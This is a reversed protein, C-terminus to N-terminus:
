FLQNMSQDLLEEDFTKIYEETVKLRSHGLAKSIAYLDMGKKLAYHAFSHRSVHFSVNSQIGAKGAITKLHRNVIVNNSSIKKRLEQPDRYIDDLIPFIYQKSHSAAYKRILPAFFDIPEMTAKITPEWTTFSVLGGLNDVYRLLLQYMPRQQNISKQQGTKNMKYILRGDILNGWTLCCLDGFRIGANYFSFMFYNRTHWLDSGRELSLNEIARIQDFSLKVKNNVKQFKVRDVKPYPDQEIDDKKLLWDTMGKLRQLKKRVTNPSNGVDTLLWDQFEEIWQATLQDLQNPMNRDEIFLELNNIVVTYHRQEWYRDESQLHNKYEQAQYLISRSDEKSDDESLADTISDLSLKDQKYLEEEVNYVDTLQNKLLRNLQEARDHSSSIWSDKKGLWYKKKVAIGTSKYRSKRNETFRIYVPITGDNRKKRKLQTLGITLSMNSDTQV